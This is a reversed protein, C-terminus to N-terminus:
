QPRRFARLPVRRRRGRWDIVIWRRPERHDIDGREDEDLSGSFPRGGLEAQSPRLLKVIEPPELVGDSFRLPEVCELWQQELLERPVTAAALKRTM